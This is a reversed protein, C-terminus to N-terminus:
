AKESPNVQTGTITIDFTFEKGADKTDIQDNAKIQSENTGTQYDWSWEITITKTRSDNLTIRGKLLNELGELTNATTGNYTFKLNSPKNLCNEFKISYDIAVDAGTADLVIDFSGKTGPAIKNAVLKSQNYTNSLKINAITKTENNAKFSWRAVQANGTGNIETYYKSYTSGGMIGLTAVSLLVATLATGKKLKKSLEKKM